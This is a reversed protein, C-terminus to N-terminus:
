YESPYDQMLNENFYTYSMVIEWGTMAAYGVNVVRWIMCLAYCLRSRGLPVHFYSAAM